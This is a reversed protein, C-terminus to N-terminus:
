LSVNVVTQAGVTVEQTVFGIFSFVLVADGSAVNIKFNGDMDSTTGNSTGKELVNVGPVASGDDSSTIKGSVAREQAWAAFSLMLLVVTLNRRVSLYFSTM